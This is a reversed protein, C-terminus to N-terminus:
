SKTGDNEEQIHLEATDSNFIPQDVKHDLYVHLNGLKKKAKDAAIRRLEMEIGEKERAEESELSRMLGGWDEKYNEVGKVREKRTAHLGDLMKHKEAQFKIIDQNHKTAAETLSTIVQTYKNLMEKDRSTPQKELEGELLQGMRKTEALNEKHSTMLRNQMIDIMVLDKIQLEETPQCDNDFQEVYRTWSDIFFDIEASSLNDKTTKWFVQQQLKTRIEIRDMEEESLGSDVLGEAKMYKIVPGANRNILEAIEEITKSPAFEKIIRKEEDSLAGRKKEIPM